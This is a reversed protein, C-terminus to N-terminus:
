RARTYPSAEPWRTEDWVRQWFRKILTRDAKKLLYPDNRVNCFVYSAKM